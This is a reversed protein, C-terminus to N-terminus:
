VVNIKKLANNYLLILEQPLGKYYIFLAGTLSLSNQPWQLLMITIYPFLEVVYKMWSIWM